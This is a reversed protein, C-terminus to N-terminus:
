IRIGLGIQSLSQLAIRSRLHRLAQLNNGQFLKLIDNRIYIGLLYLVVYFASIGTQRNLCHLLIHVGIEILLITELRQDNLPCAGEDISDSGIESIVVFDSEESLYEFILAIFFKSEDLHM